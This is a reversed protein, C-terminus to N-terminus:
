AQELARRAADLQTSAMGFAAAVIVEFLQDESYTGRLSDLDRDTVTYAATRVKRVLTSLDDPANGAAITRRLDPPTAGPGDLVAAATARRYESFRDEV